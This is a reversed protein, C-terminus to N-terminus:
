RPKSARLLLNTPIFFDRLPQGMGCTALQLDAFGAKAVIRSLTNRTFFRIHPYEPDFHHDWKFLAIALNKLGGHYPVTALLLGGPAVVRFMERLAFAPDFLHELVESCWIVAFRDADFPLPASLDHQLFRVDPSREANRALQQESIDVATVRRNFKMLDATFSADGCGLELIEADVALHQLEQAM